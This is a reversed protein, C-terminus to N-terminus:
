TGFRPGSPGHTHPNGGFAATGSGPSARRHACANASPTITLRNPEVHPPPKTLFSRRLRRLMLDTCDMFVKGAFAERGSKSETIVHTLRGQSDKLVACVRTHLQIQVKAEACLQELTFKMVEVDYANTPVGRQTLTRGEAKAPRELMERMLGPKNQHDLIWSLMGATWIGGLCGHLELLLVRAGKRAAAVAVAVGAPGAGCVIVDAEGAILVQRARESATGPTASMSEAADLRPTIATADLSVGGLKLFNRRTTKM